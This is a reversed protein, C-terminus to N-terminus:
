DTKTNRTAKMAEGYKEFLRQAVAVSDGKAKARYRDTQKTWDDEFKFLEAGCADADFPKGTRLSEQQRQFFIEWRRAYFGDILGSWEKWAYDRLKEGKGWLTLVRRANWELRAREARTDGWRKADELWQGLLFQDSTALLEDLDHLLQLFVKSARRYAAADKAEYATEVREYLSTAHNVLTERAVNVLDHRYTEVGGLEKHAALLSSWASALADVPYQMTKKQKLPFSIAIKAPGWTAEGSSYIKTRLIEWAAEADPNAQGYRFHTFECVWSQLGGGGEPLSANWRTGMKEAPLKPRPHFADRGSTLPLDIDGRWALEFMIDYLLPNHSFGEMMFGVGRVNQGLPDNRVAPLDRFRKLKGSAGLITNNGFNCIFSWVWPKGYFGETKKWVPRHECFLDLVIMRDDPVSTLFAKIREQNTNNTRETDWFRHQNIFTWGQLLWVAKPDADAMSKYIARGANTLYSLEGSPPTMEIFSDAAYYHDTGFLKTQEEIWARGIKQFLPDVPDLMWTDFEIWHIKHAKTGPFKKLLAEPTHGTFGQLVPTMGLERERALIKKELEVHRPIWSKPLPGGWGDLCGMWSFPLYPPGALFAEIDADAVGFRRCVAQWVAEQGTVALPQNIGNLAMWDILREWQKWDWWAMSYSFTCYNFFYRSAAWATMRVKAPVVPLPKPLNMQSGNLSVSCHCYYKLYWNLGVAMSLASNGRVVTKSERTELEFVDKGADAPIQEFHIAVGARGMIRKALDSAAQEPPKAFATSVTFGLVCLLRLLQKM